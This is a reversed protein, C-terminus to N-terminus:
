SRRFRNIFGRIGSAPRIEDLRAMAQEDLRVSGAAVNQELHDVSATGPILLTNGAHHLLWALGVQAPTAGIAGAIEQVVPERTAKTSGPHAGGLPFYPVWAIGEARCLELLPEHKRATLSYWNQVCVIGAPLARRLEALSVTSVGIAGILGEDRMAVMAAMQDDFDVMQRPGMPFTGPAIRRMNVVDLHETRLSRLNDLVEQRLEEPRQAPAMPMPGRKAPRAGVKTAIVVGREAGLERALHDNATGDGYFHATDFHDVGLEFARRLVKRAAAADKLRPLQMTGYGVRAVDRGAMPHVGGPHPASPDTLGSM